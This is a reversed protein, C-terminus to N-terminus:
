PGVGSYTWPGTNDRITPVPAGTVRFQATSSTTPTSVLVNGSAVAGPNGRLAVAVIPGRFMNDRLALGLSGNIAVGQASVPGITNGAIVVSGSSAGQGIDDCQIAATLVQGPFTVNAPGLKATFVNGSITVDEVPSGPRGSLSTYRGCYIGQCAGPIGLNDRTFDFVNSTILVGRSGLITVAGGGTGWGSHNTSCDRFLNNAILCGAHEQVDDAGFLVGNGCDSFVNGSVVVGRIPAVSGSVKVGSM